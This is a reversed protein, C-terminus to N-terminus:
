RCHSDWSCFSWSSRCLPSRFWSSPLNRPPTVADLPQRDRPANPSKASQKAWFSELQEATGDFQDRDCRGVGDVTHPEPGAGGDPVALADLGELSQLHAAGQQLARDLVLVEFAGDAPSTIGAKKFAEKITHGSYLGPYRGTQAKVHSVFHEAEELSMDNGQPNGEFDLVLLSAEGAVAIWHDAQAIADGATGFTSSRM